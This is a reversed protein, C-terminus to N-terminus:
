FLGIKSGRLHGKKARLAMLFQIIESGGFAGGGMKGGIIVHYIFSGQTPNSSFTLTM